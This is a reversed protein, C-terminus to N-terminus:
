RRFLWKGVGRFLPAALSLTSAPCNPKHPGSRMGCYGGQEKEILDIMSALQRNAESPLRLGAHVDFWHGRATSPSFPDHIFRFYMYIANEFNLWEGQTEDGFPGTGGKFHFVEDGDRVEQLPITSQDILKFSSYGALLLHRLLTRDSAEFSVWEPKKELHKLHEAIYIDYGEIDSKLYDPSGFRTFLDNPTICKVKIVKSKGEGWNHAAEKHFTSWEINETHVFFDILEGEDKGVGLNLLTLQRSAIAKKFQRQGAEVLTPNAEFALVEHGRRLYYDTDAGDHFGIDFIRM